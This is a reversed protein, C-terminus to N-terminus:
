GTKLRAMAMFWKGIHKIKRTPDKAQSYLLYSRPLGIRKIVGLYQGFRKPEGALESFDRALAHLESHMGKQQEKPTYEIRPATKVPGPGRFLANVEQQTAACAICVQGVFNHGHTKGKCSSQGLNM